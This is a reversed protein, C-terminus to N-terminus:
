HGLDRAGRALCRVRLHGPLDRPRWIVRGRQHRPPNAVVRRGSRGRFTSGGFRPAFARNRVHLRGRRVARIGLALSVPHSPAVSTSPTTVSPSPVLALRSGAMLPVGIVGLVLAAALGLLIGPAIRRRGAAEDLVRRRVRPSVKAVGMEARLRIDDRRMGAATSRCTHCAALHAELEAAEEASLPQGIQKAALMVFTEHDTM